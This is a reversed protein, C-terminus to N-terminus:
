LHQFSIINNSHFNQFSEINGDRDNCSCFKINECAKQLFTDEDDAQLLTFM